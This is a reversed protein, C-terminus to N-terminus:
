PQTFPPPLGERTLIVLEGHESQWVPKLDMKVIQTLIRKRMAASLIPNADEMNLLVYDVTDDLSTRDTLLRHDAAGTYAFYLSHDMLYFHDKDLRALFEHAARHHPRAQIASFDADKSLPVPGFNGPTFWYHISLTGALFLSVGVVTRGRTWFNPFRRRLLRLFRDTGELGAIYFFPLMTIFGSNFFSFWPDNMNTAWSTRPDVSTLSLTSLAVYFTEPLAGALWIPRILPLGALSVIFLLLTLNKWYFLNKLAFGPRGIITMVMESFSNGFGALHGVETPPHVGSLKGVALISVAILVIWGAGVLLALRGFPSTRERWHLVLGLCLVGIIINAQAACACAICLAFWGKRKKQWAIFSGLAAPIILAAPRFGSLSSVALIPSFLLSFSFMLPLWPSKWITRGAWYVLFIGSAFMLSNLVMLTIPSSFITFPIVYFYYAQSFVLGYLHTPELDLVRGSLMARLVDIVNTYDFCAPHLSTWKAIQLWLHTGFFLFSLLIAASWGFLNQRAAPSSQNNTTNPAM